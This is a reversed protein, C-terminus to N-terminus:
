SSIDNKETPDKSPDYLETRKAAYFYLMKYNGMRVASCMRPIWQGTESPYHWFLPQGREWKKGKFLPLISKGDVINGPKNKLGAMVLFTPYFDIGCVAANSVSGPKIAAPWRAILNERIGGEYLWSKGMRLIGNNAFGAV